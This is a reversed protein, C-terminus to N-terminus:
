RVPKQYQKDLDQNHIKFESDSPIVLLKSRQEEDEVKSSLIKERLLSPDKQVYYLKLYSTKESYVQIRRFM